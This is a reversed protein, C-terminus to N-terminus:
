IIKKNKLSSFVSETFAIYKVGDEFKTLKVPTNNLISDIFDREM